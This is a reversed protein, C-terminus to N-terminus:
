EERKSKKKPLPDQQEKPNTKTTPVDADKWKRDGPRRQAVAISFRFEISKPQKNNSM